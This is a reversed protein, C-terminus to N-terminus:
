SLHSLQGLCIADLYGGRVQRVCDYIQRCQLGFSILRLAPASIALPGAPFSWKVIWYRQGVAPLEDGELVSAPYVDGLKRLSVLLQIFPLGGLCQQQNDLM